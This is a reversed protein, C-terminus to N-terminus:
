PPDFSSTAQEEFFHLVDNRTTRIVGVHARRAVFQSQLILRLLSPEQLVLSEVEGVPKRDELIHVGFLGISSLSVAVSDIKVTYGSQASLHTEAIIRVHQEAWNVYFVHFAGFFLLFIVAPSVFVAVIFRRANLM